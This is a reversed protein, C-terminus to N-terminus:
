VEGGGGGAWVFLCVRVCLGGGIQVNRDDHSIVHIITQLSGLSMAM